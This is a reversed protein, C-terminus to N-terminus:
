DEFEALAADDDNVRVNRIPGGAPLRVEVTEADIVVLHDQRTRDELEVSVTVPVVFSAGDLQEFTVVVDRGDARWASRIRPIQQGYIWGEFFRTLPRGTVAEFSARLDDTGAKRFRWNTYFHRLSEVFADDGVLRRLMHLVAAGKNYVLARFVRADGQIHGLRYGLYVPGQDSENLSWRRLQGLADAFEDPDEREYYMM